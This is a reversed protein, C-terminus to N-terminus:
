DTRPGNSDEQDDVARIGTEEESESDMPDEGTSDATDAAIDPVPREFGTLPMTKLNRIGKVTKKFLIPLCFLGTLLILLILSAATIEDLGASFVGLYDNIMHFMISVHIGFRMYLYGMALGGLVVTFMKMVGWSGVHAYAFILSSIVMFIVGARSVGFGGLPYRYFDKQRCGLAIIMMPVGFLIMRFCVEEWVAAETFLYLAQEISLDILGGPVQIGLGIAQFILTLMLEVLLVSGMMMALWFAPTKKTKEWHDEKGFRLVDRSDYIFMFACAVLAATLFVWYIQAEAGTIVALKVYLPLFLFVDVDLHSVFDLVSGFNALLLVVGIILCLAIVAMSPIVLKNYVDESEDQIHHEPVKATEAFSEGCKICFKYGLVRCRDCEPCAM